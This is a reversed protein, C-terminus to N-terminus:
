FAKSILVAMFYGLHTLGFIIISEIIYKYFTPHSIIINGWGILFWSYFSPKPSDKKAYEVAKNKLSQGVILVLFFATIVISRGISGDGKKTETLRNASVIGTGAGFFIIVLLRAYNLLALLGTLIKNMIPKGYADKKNAM